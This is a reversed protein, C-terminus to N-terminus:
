RWSLREEDSATLNMFQAENRAEEESKCRIADGNPLVVWWREDKRVALCGMKRDYREFLGKTRPKM